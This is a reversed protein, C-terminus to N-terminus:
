LRAYVPLAFGDLVAQQRINIFARLNRGTQINRQAVDGKHPIRSIFLCKRGGSLHPKRVASTGVRRADGSIDPNERM